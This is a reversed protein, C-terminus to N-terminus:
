TKTDLTLCHYALCPSHLVITANETNPDLPHQPFVGSTFFVVVHDHEERRPLIPHLFCHLSVGTANEHKPHRSGGLFSYCSWITANKTDPHYFTTPLTCPCGLCSSRSVPTANEHKPHRSRRPPLLYHSPHLSM